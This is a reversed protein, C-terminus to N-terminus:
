MQTNNILGICFSFIKYRNFIGFNDIFENTSQSIIEDVYKYTYKNNTHKHNYEVTCKIKTNTNTNTNTNTDNENTFRLSYYWNDCIGNRSWGRLMTFESGDGNQSFRFGCEALYTLFTNDDWDDFNDYDEYDMIIYIYIYIVFFYKNM